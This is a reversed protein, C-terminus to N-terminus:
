PQPSEVVSPRVLQEPRYRVWQASWPSEVAVTGDDPLYVVTAVADDPTLVIDGVAFASM